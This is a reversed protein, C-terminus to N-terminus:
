KPFDFYITSESGDSAFNHLYHNMDHFSFRVEGSLSPLRTVGPPWCRAPLLFGRRKRGGEVMSSLLLSVISVLMGKSFWSYTLM